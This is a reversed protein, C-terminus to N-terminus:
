YFFISFFFFFLLFVFCFFFFFCCCINKQEKSRLDYFDYKIDSYAAFFSVYENSFLYDFKEIDDRFTLCLSSSFLFFEIVELQIKM